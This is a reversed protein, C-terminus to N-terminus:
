SLTRSKGAASVTIWLKKSVLPWRHELAYRVAPEEPINTFQIHKESILGRKVFFAYVSFRSVGVLIYEPDLLTRLGGLSVGYYNVDFLDTRKYEPVYPVTVSKDLPIVHNFRCCIVSPSERELLTRLAWYEVGGTDILALDLTSYRFPVFRIDDMTCVVRDSVISVFNFMNILNEFINKKTITHNINIFTPVTHLGILKFLCYLVGDEGFSSHIDYYYDPLHILM